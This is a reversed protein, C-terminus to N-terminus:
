SLPLPRIRKKVWSMVDGTFSSLDARECVYGAARVAGQIGYEYVDDMEKKFPMAVFIHPKVDSAYGAARLRDSAKPEVDDFYVKTDTEVQGKPLLGALSRSLREARRSNMEVISVRELGKPFAGANISDILGAVEAEFAEIEDLGYNAGHLTLACHRAKPMSQQLEQLARRAFERIERYGFQWLWEVGLVLIRDAVVAGKADVLNAAGTAVQLATIDGGQSTFRRAVEADAGFFDQAYKLVLVDADFALIDVEVVAIRIRAHNAKM